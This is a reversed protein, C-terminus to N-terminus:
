RAPMTMLPTGYFGEGGIYPPQATIHYHYIGEPYDATAHTHGHFADLDANTITKGNEQPGYVPYGDLLFGILADKGAAQTIALPETHYHYMGEQQPHGRYQDFSVIEDRLPRGNGAYQNFLPIGDVALGIPGGPTPQHQQAPQPTLPIRLVLSQEVITSPNPRFEASQYPAYRPDNRPFYPSPHNPIARTKLVVVDGEVSVEVEPAFHKFAAPLTASAVGKTAPAETTPSEATPLEPNAPAVKPAATSPDLPQRPPPAGPPACAALLLLGLWWCRGRVLWRLASQKVSRVFRLM